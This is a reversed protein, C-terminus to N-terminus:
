RGRPAMKRSLYAKKTIPYGGIVVPEAGIM